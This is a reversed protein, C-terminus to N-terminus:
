RLAIDQLAWLTGVGVFAWMLLRRSELRQRLQSLLELPFNNQLEGRSQSNAAREELVRMVREVYIMALSVGIMLWPFYTEM